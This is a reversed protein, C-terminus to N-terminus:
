RYCDCGCVRVWLGSSRSMLPDDIPRDITVLGFSDGYTLFDETISCRCELICIAEKGIYITAFEDKGSPNSGGISFAVGKGM